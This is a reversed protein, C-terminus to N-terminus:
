KIYKIVAELDTRENIGLSVYEGESNGCGAFDFTVLNM